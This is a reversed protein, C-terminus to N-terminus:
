LKRRRVTIRTTQDLDTVGESFNHSVNTIKGIWVRGYEVDEIQILKGDAVYPTFPLDLDVTEFLESNEDLEQKGRALAAPITGILPDVIDEGRSLGDGRQVFVDISM